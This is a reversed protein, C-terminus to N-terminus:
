PKDKKSEEFQKKLEPNLPYVYTVCFGDVRVTRARSREGQPM